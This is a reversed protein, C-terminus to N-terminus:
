NRIVHQQLAQRALALASGPSGSVDVPIWDGACPNSSAAARLVALTADSADGQRSSIRQELVPLPAELWLGVFVVGAAAAASQVLARDPPDIFTADAIVAHGCAATQRVLEALETFVAQSAPDSYASQPLRQEPAVGHQRKRIEDSRLLLAGPANGLEPALARAVTSKGSGPLGGIALAIPQIVRLYATAAGLYREAPARNGRKAEVHARVMARLSLFVPLGRTLEADGTRAVYRNLVRNAAARNVRQDLDMLLFALDYGLDITAMAEDFELADFLVPKGRWLCLNGLHLDGHVRRVFGDRSRQELWPALSDLGALLQAQWSRVAAEPLGAYLASQANGHTVHRMALHVGEGVRGRKAPSPTNPGPERELSAPSPQPPPAVADHCAPSPQPPPAEAAHYAAVVDGLADLLAPTLRGEAAVVDLFDGPPVRAMRLVWDVIEHDTDTTEGVMLAGDAGRVLPVTDRYLEPAAPKNLELERLTFRRRAEMTSFDLFALRVAKKLKWVTDTGVFVFSIHTEVPAAGALRRLLAVAEAQEPPATVGVDPIYSASRGAV